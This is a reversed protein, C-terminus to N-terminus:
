TPLIMGLVRPKHGAAQAPGKPDDSVKKSNWVPLTVCLHPNPVSFAVNHYKKKVQDISSCHVASSTTDSGTRTQRMYVLNSEQVSVLTLM